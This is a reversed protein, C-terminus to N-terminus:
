RKNAGAPPLTQMSIDLFQDITLNLERQSADNSIRLRIEDGDYIIDVVTSAGKFEESLTEDLFEFRRGILKALGARRMLEQFIIPDLDVEYRSVSNEPVFILQNEDPFISELVILPQNTNPDVEVRGSSDRKYGIYRRPNENDGETNLVLLEEPEFLDIRHEKTVDDLDALRDTVEKPNNKVYEGM